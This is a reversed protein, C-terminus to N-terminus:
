EKFDMPNSDKPIVDPILNPIIIKSGDKLFQQGLTVVNGEPEVGQVQVLEDEKIGAVVNKWAVSKGKEMVVFVGTKDDRKTLAQEPILIADEAHDLVITTRIFMGPKLKQEPNEIITEIRAQRTKQNFVPAIRFIKGHFQEKPFADTSLIVQQGPSLRSYDKETIFLVGIVPSLKVISMLSSTASVTNGEDLFREAVVRYKDEGSWEARVKTYGLRINATELTAEARIVQARAVELRAKKALQGTAAVDLQSESKVGRTNLTKIRDLERDAIILASQAEVLNAKAVVLDAKAQAVEQVYEDDDLEAVLQGQSVTDSVGVYLRKVRGSVKPAVLFESQAEVTGSFTRKLTISGKKIAEVEVPIVMSPNGQDASGQSTKIRKFVLWGMGSVVSAILLMVIFRRTWSIM